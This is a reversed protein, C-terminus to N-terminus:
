HEVIIDWRRVLLFIFNFFFFFFFIKRLILHYFCRVYFVNSAVNRARKFIKEVVVLLSGADFNEEDLLHTVSILNV